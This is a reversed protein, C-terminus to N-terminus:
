DRKTRIDDSILERARTMIEEKDFGMRLILDPIDSFLELEMDKVPHTFCLSFAHLCISEDPFEEASGYKRDGTVPLGISSLQARVQHKRGTILRVLLLKERGNDAIEIFNMSGPKSNGSESKLVETFGRQKRLHHVLKVWEDRNYSLLATGSVVALYYKKVSRALFQQHLRKAAKSTRAFLLVGSVNRDLRHVLGLFVDGPKNYKFRIYEKAEDLLSGRSSYDGQSLIGAPKEVALLHNDEYLVKIMM